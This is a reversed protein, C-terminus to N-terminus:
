RVPSPSGPTYKHFRPLARIECETLRHREIVQPPLPNVEVKAPPHPPATKDDDGNDFSSDSNKNKDGDKENKKGSELRGVVQMINEEM